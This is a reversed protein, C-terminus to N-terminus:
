YANNTKGVNGKKHSHVLSWIFFISRFKDLAARRMSSFVERHQLIFCAGDFLALRPMIFVDM